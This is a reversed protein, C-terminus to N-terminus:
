QTSVRTGLLTNCIERENDIKNRVSISKPSLLIAFHTLHNCQCSVRREDFDSSLKCGGRSWYGSPLQEDKSRVSFENCM